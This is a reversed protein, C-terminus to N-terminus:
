DYQKVEKEVIRICCQGNGYKQKLYISKHKELFSLLDELTPKDIEYQKEIEMEANLEDVVLNICKQMASYFNNYIEEVEYGNCESDEFDYWDRMVVYVKKNEM